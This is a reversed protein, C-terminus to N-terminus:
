FTWSKKAVSVCGLKQKGGIESPFRNIKTDPPNGILNTEYLALDKFVCEIANESLAVLLM